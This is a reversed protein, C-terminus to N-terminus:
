QWCQAAASFGNEESFTSPLPPSCYAGDLKNDINFLFTLASSPFCSLPAFPLSPLKKPPFMHVVCEEWTRASM